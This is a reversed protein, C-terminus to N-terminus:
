ANDSGTLVTIQPMCLLSSTCPMIRIARPKVGSVVDSTSRRSVADRAGACFPAMSTYLSGLLPVAAAM